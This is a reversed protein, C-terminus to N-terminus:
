HNDQASVEYGTLDDGGPQSMQPGVGPQRPLAGPEALLQMALREQDDSSLLWFELQRTEDFPDIYKADKRMEFHLHPATSHGTSGVLGIVEGRSVLAGVKVEREIKSLHAYYTQYGRGHDLIILNGYGGMRGAFAVRADGVSHVDTGKPAMLDSGVHYERVKVYRFTPKAQSGKPAPVRVRATSTDPGVGRSKAAYKVPSQWIAREYAIGEMSMLVGPGDPRPLWWAGDLIKGTATDRVEISDLRETRAKPDRQLAIAISYPRANLDGVTLGDESAVHALMKPVVIDLQWRVEKPIATLADNSRDAMDRPSLTLVRRDSDGCECAGPTVTVEDSVRRVAVMSAAGSQAREFTASAAGGEGGTAAAYPTCEKTAGPMLHQEALLEELRSQDMRLKSALLPLNEPELCGQWVSAAETVAPIDAPPKSPAPPAKKRTATQKPPKPKKAKTQTKTKKSSSRAASPSNTSASNTSATGAPASAAIGGQAFLSTAAGGLLVALSIRLVRKESARM